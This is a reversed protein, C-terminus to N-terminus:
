YICNRQNDFTGQHLGSSEPGAKRCYNNPIAAVLDKHLQQYYNYSSANYETLGGDTSAIVLNM